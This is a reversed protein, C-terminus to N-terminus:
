KEKLKERLEKLEKIIEIVDDTKVMSGALGDYTILRIKVGNIIETMDSVMGTSAIRPEYSKIKDLDIM